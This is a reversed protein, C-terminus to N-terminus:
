PLVPGGVAAGAGVPAGLVEPPEGEGRQPDFAPMVTLSEVPVDLPDGGEVFMTHKRAAGKLLIQHSIKQPCSCLLSPGRGQSHPEPLPCRQPAPRHSGPSRDRWRMVGLRVCLGWAVPRWHPATRPLALAESVRVRRTPRSCPDLSPEQLRVKEFLVVQLRDSFYLSEHDPSFTVTFDQARGPEMVGEVPVVSFVSQGSYNQTGPPLAAQCTRSGRCRGAGGLGAGGRGACDGAEVPEEGAATVGGLRGLEGVVETRQASSALFQPLRHQDGSRTSLSDLQVSFKIPLPSNNQLQLSCPETVPWGIALSSGGPRLERQQGRAVGQATLSLSAKLRVLM